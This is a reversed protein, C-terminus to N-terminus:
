DYSQLRGDEDIFATLTNVFPEHFFYLFRQEYADDDNPYNQRILTRVKVDDGELYAARLEEIEAGTMGAIADVFQWDGDLYRQNEAEAANAHRLHTPVLIWNQCWVLLVALGCLGFVRWDFSGDLRSALFVCLFSFGGLFGTSKRVKEWFESSDGM